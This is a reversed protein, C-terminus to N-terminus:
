MNDFKNKIIANKQSRFPISFLVLFHHYPSVKIKVIAQSDMKEEFIDSELLGRQM